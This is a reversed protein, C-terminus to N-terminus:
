ATYYVEAEFLREVEYRYLENETQRSNGKKIEFLLNFWCPFLRILYIPINFGWFSHKM